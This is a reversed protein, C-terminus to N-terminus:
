TEASAAQRADVAGRFHLCRFYLGGPELVVDPNNVQRIRHGRFSLNVVLLFESNSDSGCDSIRGPSTRHGVASSGVRLSHRYRNNRYYVVEGHRATPSPSPLLVQRHRRLRDLQCRDATQITSYGGGAYGHDWCFGSVLASIAYSIRM